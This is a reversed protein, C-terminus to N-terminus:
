WLTYFVWNGSSADASTYPLDKVDNTHGCRTRTVTDNQSIMVIHSPMRIVAGAAATQFDSKQWYSKNLMHTEMASVSIWASTGPAWTADRPLGGAELCQSVFNACDNHCYKPYSNNWKSQDRYVNLNAGCNCKYAATFPVSSTYLRAYDRASIRNYNPYLSPAVQSSSHEVATSKVAERGENQLTEPADPFMEEVPVYRDSNQALVTVQDSDFQGKNLNGSIRLIFNTNQREGLYSEAEEVWFNVQEAVAVKQSETFDSRQVEEKRIYESANATTVKAEAFMGQIFPLDHVDKAKLVRALSVLLDAQYQDGEVVLDYLETHTDLIHYYYSYGDTVLEMAYDKIQEVLHESPPILACTPVVAPFVFCAITLVVAVLRSALKM